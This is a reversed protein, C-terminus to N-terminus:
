WTYEPQRLGVVYIIKVLYSPQELEGYFKELIKPFRSPKRWTQLLGLNPGHRHTCNWIKTYHCFWSAQQAQKDLHSDRLLCCAIKCPCQNAKWQNKSSQIVSWFRWNETELWVWWLWNRFLSQSWFYIVYCLVPHIPEPFPLKQKHETYLVCITFLPQTLFLGFAKTRLIHITGKKVLDFKRMCDIYCHFKEHVYNQLSALKRLLKGCNPGDM